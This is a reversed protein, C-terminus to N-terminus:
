DVHRTNEKNYKSFFWVYFKRSLFFTIFLTIWTVHWTWHLYKIIDTYKEILVEIITIATCFYFYHMFQRFRSKGNPYYLNFIVCISPYVFYEFTFSTRTAYPFFRVPYEILGLQVVTLGLIWT